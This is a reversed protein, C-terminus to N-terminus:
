PLPIQPLQAERPPETPETPDVGSGCFEFNVSKDKDNFNFFYFLNIKKSFSRSQFRFDVVKKALFYNLNTIKQGELLKWYLNNNSIEIM